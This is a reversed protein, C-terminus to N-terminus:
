RGAGQGAPPSLLERLREDNRRAASQLREVVADLDAAAAPSPPFVGEIRAVISAAGADLGLESDARGLGRLFAQIKPDYSLGVAPLRALAALILAHLRMGLVVHFGAFVQPYRHAEIRRLLVVPPRRMAAAVAACAHTDEPFQMPVLVVRAPLREALSDAAAALELALRPDPHPRPAIALVTEGPLVGAERLEAPVGEAPGGAPLSLVADATVEVGRVGARQLYEASEADRVTVAAAGRLLRLGARAWGARLPGIGQAYIMFPRGLARAAAIVGLYYPVSGPGTADQLLGGGGSVLLDCAALARLVGAPKARPVAAVGHDRRTAAPDASLVTVVNGDLARLLVRLIIEDGANGFGYYGSVVVRALRRGGM